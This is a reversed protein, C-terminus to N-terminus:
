AAALRMFREASELEAHLTKLRTEAEADRGWKEAQFQEDVHAAAHASAADLRGDALALALVVSKMIGAATLLGTLAFADAHALAGAIGVAGPQDVSGIGSTIKLDLGYRDRVWALPGDWAVAERTALAPPDDARYCVLDHRAFDELQALAAARNPGIRDIATNALKTLPMTREGVQEGQGDWESAIAEALAATPLLLVTGAPTKIPRGDLMVSFAGGSPAVAVTKYFRKM